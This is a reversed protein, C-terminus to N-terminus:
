SVAKSRIDQTIVNKLHVKRNLGRRTSNASSTKPNLDELGPLLHSDGTGLLIRLYTVNNCQVSSM